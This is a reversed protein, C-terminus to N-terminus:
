AAARRWAAALARVAPEISPEPLSGFGLLLHTAGGHDYGYVAVGDAWAAALVADARPGRPLTALAHLGAAVGGVRALPLEAALAAVLLDRRRRYAARMRRVHRDLEGGAILDALALQAIAPSGGDAWEKAERVPGLLEAPPVIWALRLGPALTKSASGLYAVREPALGQLAGVPERDYRFEGNYDDELVFADRAAAWELLAARREPALVAGTPMQHAPTVLAAGASSAALAAVDLGGGDVAVEVVELGARALVVRHLPFGPHEVAVRAVGRARLAGAVLGLSQMTGAAVLLRDPGAAVGRSRGLYAALAARLEAAGARDGYGLAADPARTLARREAALWARRPFASLDGSEVRFDFRVPPAAPGARPGEWAPREPAVAAVRTGAGRRTVLYGEAVLQAYAEVVVGRSVGLEAALARSSPLDVGAHLTGSRVGARLQEEVQARLSRGSGPRVGVLLDVGLQDM